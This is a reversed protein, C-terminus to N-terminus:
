KKKRGRKTKKKGKKKKGKTSNKGKSKRRRRTKKKKSLAGEIPQAAGEPELDMHVDSQLFVGSGKSNNRFIAYTVNTLWANWATNCDDDAIILRYLPDTQDKTLIAQFMKYGRDLGVEKVDEVGDGALDDLGPTSNALQLLFIILGRYLLLGHTPEDVGPKLSFYPVCVKIVLSLLMELGDSNALKNLFGYFAYIKQVPTTSKIYGILYDSILKALGKIIDVSIGAFKKSAVEIADKNIQLGISNFPFINILYFDDDYKDNMIKDLLDITRQLIGEKAVSEDVSETKAEEVIKENLFCRNIERSLVMSEGKIFKLMNRENTLTQINKHGKLLNDKATKYAKANELSVGELPSVSLADSFRTVLVRGGPTLIQEYETMLSPSIEIEQVGLKKLEEVTMNLISEGMKRSRCWEIYVEDLTTAHPGKMRPKKREGVM